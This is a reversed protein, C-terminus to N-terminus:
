DEVRRSRIVAVIAIVVSIVSVAISGYVLNTMNTQLTTLDGQLSAVDEQLGSISQNLAQIIETPIVPPAPTITSKLRFLMLYSGHSGDWYPVAGAYSNDKNPFNTWYTESYMYFPGYFWGTIYPLEKLIISQLEGYLNTLTEVDEPNTRAIEDLLADVRTNNYSGWNGYAPKGAAPSARSVFNIYYTYWPTAPTWTSPQDFTLTFEGSQIDEFFVTDEVLKVTIDLGVNILNEKFIEAAGEWDTWGEVILLEYPGIKTGNAYHRWGDTGMSYGLNDLIENARTVNFTWGYKEVATSNIFQALEPVNEPLMSPNAPTTLKAFALDCVKNWDVAFAIARRAEPNALADDNTIKLHNFIVLGTMYPVPMYYPQDTSWSGRALHKTEWLEWINPMFCESWDIEGKELMMNGIENSSIVINIIYKPQPLGFYQEGWYNDDRIWVTRHESVSSYMLKYPGSGVPNDLYTFDLLSAYQTEAVTWIHMPLIEIQTLAQTLIYKNPNDAKLVFDITTSNVVAIHDLYTWLDAIVGTIESKRIPLYFTYNIDASTLSQGDNWKTGDHLMIRLSLDNIWESSEALWPVLKFHWADFVFLPELFPRFAPINPIFPNFATPDEWSEMYFAEERPIETTQARVIPFKSLFPTSTLLLIMVLSTTIATKKSM